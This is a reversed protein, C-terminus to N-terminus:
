QRCGASLAVPLIGMASHTAILRWLRCIRPLTSHCSYSLVKCLHAEACMRLLRLEGRLLGVRTGQLQVAELGSIQDTM